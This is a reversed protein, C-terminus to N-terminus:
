NGGKRKEAEDAARKLIAIIEEQDIQKFDKYFQGVAYFLEPVRLCITEDASKSLKELSKRSGVPLAAILNRPNRKRVTWLAAEMTAGTAVGDDVVIVDRSEYKKMRMISRYINKRTEILGLQREVEESIYNEDAEVEDLIERNLYIGGEEAVAGIALEPQGPAGIKRSLIIDFDANLESALAEATIVGGGPIGLV